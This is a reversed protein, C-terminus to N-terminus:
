LQIICMATSSWWTSYPPIDFAHRFNKGPKKFMLVSALAWLAWLTVQLTTGLYVATCNRYSHEGLRPPGLRILFPNISLTLASTVVPARETNAATSDHFHLSM